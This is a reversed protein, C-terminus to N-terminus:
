QSIRSSTRAEYYLDQRVSRIIKEARLFLDEWNLRVRMTERVSEPRSLFKVDLKRKKLSWGSYTTCKGREETNGRSRIERFGHTKSFFWCKWRTRSFVVTFGANEYTEMKLIQTHLSRLADKISHVADRCWSTWIRGSRWHCSKSLWRGCNKGPHSTSRHGLIGTLSLEELSLTTPSFWNPSMVQQLHSKLPDAVGGHITALYIHISYWLVSSHSFSRGSSLHPLHSPSSASTTLHWTHCPVLCSAHIVFPKQSVLAHLGSSHARSGRTNAHDFIM